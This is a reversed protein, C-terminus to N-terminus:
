SAEKATFIYLATINTSVPDDHETLTQRLPQLAIARAVDTYKRAHKVLGDVDHLIRSEIPFSLYRILQDNVYIAVKTRGPDTQRFVIKPTTKATVTTDPDLVTINPIQIEDIHEFVSQTETPLVYLKTGLWLGLLYWAINLSLLIGTSALSNTIILALSLVIVSPLAMYLIIRNM